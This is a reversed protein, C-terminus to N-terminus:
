GAKTVLSAHFAVADAKEKNSMQSFNESHAKAQEYGFKLLKNGKVAEAFTGNDMAEKILSSAAQQGEQTALAYDLNHGLRQSFSGSVSQLFQAADQKVQGANYTLQQSSLHAGRRIGASSFPQEASAQGFPGTMQNHRQNLSNRWHQFQQSAEEWMQQMKIDEEEKARKMTESQAQDASGQATTALRHSGLMLSGAVAAVAKPAIWGLIMAAIGPITMALMAAPGVYDLLAANMSLHSKFTIGHLVNFRQLEDILFHNVTAHIIAETPRWLSVFCLATFWYLFPKGGMLIFFVGIFPFLFVVVIKLMPIFENMNQLYSMAALMSQQRQDATAQSWYALLEPNYSAFSTKIGNIWFMQEFAKQATNQYGPFITNFLNDLATRVNAVAIVARKDLKDRIRAAPKNDENSGADYTIKSVLYNYAEACTKIQTPSGDEYYVKTLYLDYTTALTNMLNGSNALEINTLAGNALAHHVCNVVYDAVTQYIADNLSIQQQLLFDMARIHGLFDWKAYDTVGVLAPPQLYEDAMERMLKEVTSTMSLTFGLGIPVDDVNYTEHTFDDIIQINIPTGLIAYYVIAPAIIGKVLTIPDVGQAAWIAMIVALCAVTYVFGSFEQGGIFHIVSTLASAMEYGSNFTYVVMTETAM